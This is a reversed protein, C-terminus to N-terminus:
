YISELKFQKFYYKNGNHLVSSRGGTGWVFRVTVNQRVGSGGLARKTYNAHSSGKGM